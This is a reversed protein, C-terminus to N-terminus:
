RKEYSNLFAQFEEKHYQEIHEEIHVVKENTKIKTTEITRGCVHCIHTGVFVDMIDSYSETMIEDGGRDGPRDM